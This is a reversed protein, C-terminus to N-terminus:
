PTVWHEREWGCWAARLSQEAGACSGQKEVRGVTDKAIARLHLGPRTEEQPVFGESNKDEDQRNGVGVGRTQGM